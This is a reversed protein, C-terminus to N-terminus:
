ELAVPVDTLVLERRDDVLSVEYVGPVVDDFTFEGFENTAGEAAGGDPRVLSVRLAVAEEVNEAASGLVQGTVRVRGATHGPSVLMDVDYGPASYLLQRSEQAPGRRAPIADAALAGGLNDFVLAARIRAVLGRVGRRTAAARAEDFLGIARRTIWEPPDFSADTSASTVIGEYWRLAGTCTECGALHGEIEPRADPGLRGDAMELLNEFTPCTM